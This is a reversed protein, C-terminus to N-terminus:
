GFMRDLQNGMEERVKKLDSEKFNTIHIKGEYIWLCFQALKVPDDSDLFPSHKSFANRDSDVKTKGGAQLALSIAKRYDNSSYDNVEKKRKM